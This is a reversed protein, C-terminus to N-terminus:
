KVEISRQSTCTEYEKHDCAYVVRVGQPVYATAKTGMGRLKKINMRRTTTVTAEFGLIMVLNFISYQWYEELCWLQM